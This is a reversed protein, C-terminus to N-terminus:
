ASFALSFGQSAFAAPLAEWKKHMSEIVAPPVHHINDWQGMCQVVIWHAHALQALGLYPAIEWLRVHTNAVVVRQGTALAAAADRQCVSHADSTRAPDFAYRGARDIFHADAELHVFGLETACRKAFTSKGSGPVGRMIVIRVDPHARLHAILDDANFKM